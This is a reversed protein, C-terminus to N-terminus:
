QGGFINTQNRLLKIENLYKDRFICYIKSYKFPDSASTYHAPHQHSHQDSHDWCHTRTDSTMNSMLIQTVLCWVSPSVLVCPDQICPATMTGVCATVLWLKWFLMCLNNDVLKPFISRSFRLIRLAWIKLSIDKYKLIRSHYLTCVNRQRHQICHVAQVISSCIKM